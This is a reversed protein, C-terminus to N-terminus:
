LGLFIRPQRRKTQRRKTQRRKTQRRKTQKRKRRRSGGVKEEGDDGEKEEERDGPADRDWLPSYLDEERDGYLDEESDGDKEDRDGPSFLPSYLDEGRDGDKEGLMNNNDSVKLKDYEIQLKERQLVLADYKKLEQKSLTNDTVQRKERKNDYIKLQDDIRRINSKAIAKNAKLREENTPPKHHTAARRLMKGNEDFPNFISFWTQWQDKNMSNVYRGQRVIFYTGILGAVAYASYTLGQILADSM